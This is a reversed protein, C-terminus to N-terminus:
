QQYPERGKFKVKTSAKKSEIMLHKTPFVTMRTDDHIWSHGTMWHDYLDKYTNHRGIYIRKWDILLNKFNEFNDGKIELIFFQGTGGEFIAPDDKIEEKIINQRYERAAVMNNYSFKRTNGLVEEFDLGNNSAKFDELWKNKNYAREFNKARKIMLDFYAISKEHIKKYIKQVKLSRKKKSILRDLSVKVSFVTPAAMRFKLFISKLNNYWEVGENSELDNNANIAVAIDINANNCITMWEKLPNQKKSTDTTFLQDLKECHGTMTKCFALYVKKDKSNLESMLSPLPKVICSEGGRAFGPLCFSFIIVFVMVSNRM